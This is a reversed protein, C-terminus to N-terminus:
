TTPTEDYSDILAPAERIDRDQRAGLVLLDRITAPSKGLMAALLRKSVDAPPRRKLAWERVTRVSPLLLTGESNLRILEQAIELIATVRQDTERYFRASGERQKDGYRENSDNSRNTYRRPEARFRSFAARLGKTVEKHCTLVIVAWTRAYLREDKRLPRVEFVPKENRIIAEAYRGGASTLMKFAVPDRKNVYLLAALLTKQAARRLAEIRRQQEDDNEAPAFSRLTEHLDINVEDRFASLTTETILDSIKQRQRRVSSRAETASPKPKPRLPKGPSSRKRASM